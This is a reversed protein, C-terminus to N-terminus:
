LDFDQSARLPREEPAVRRGTQDLEGRVIWALVSLYLEVSRITGM